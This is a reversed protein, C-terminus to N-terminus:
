NFQVVPNYRKNIKRQGRMSARAIEEDGIILILDKGDETNDTQTAMFVEMMGDVVANRIGETIQENNAVATKGNSFKGVLENHNAMFLGDEPFGGKAYWDISISPLTISGGFVDHTVSEVSFHPLPIHPFKIDISEFARKLKSLGTEATTNADDMTDSIDKGIEEMSTSVTSTMGDFEDTFTDSVDTLNETVSKGVAALNETVDKNINSGGTSVTGEMTQVNSSLNSNVETLSTSINKSNEALFTSVEGGITQTGAATRKEAESFIGDVSGTINAGNINVENLADNITTEINESIANVYARGSQSTEAGYGYVSSFLQNSVKRGTEDAVPEVEVGVREIGEAMAKSLPDIFNKNYEDAATYVFKEKSTFGFGKGGAEDWASEADSVTTGIGEIVIRDINNMGIAYATEIQQMGSEIAKARLALSEADDNPYAQEAWEHLKNQADVARDTMDSIVNGIEEAISGYDEVALGSLNINESLKAINAVADGAIGSFEDTAIGADSVMTAINVLTEGLEDTADAMDRSGAQYRQKASNYRDVASIAADVAEGSSNIAAEKLQEMDAIHQAIRNREEKSLEGTSQLINLTAMSSAIEADYQATIYEALMDKLSAFSSKLNSVQADTLTANTEMVLGITNIVDLTSQIEKRSSELSAFKENVTDVNSTIGSVVNAFTNRFDDLTLAANSTSDIWSNFVEDVKAQVLEKNASVIGAIAGAIAVLAGAILGGTLSGLLISFAVTAGGVALALQGIKAIWNDTGLILDSVADKVLSFELFATVVSGIAKVAPSIHSSIGKLAANLGDIISGTGSFVTDFTVFSDKIVSIAGQISTKATSVAKITDKMFKSYRTLISAFLTALVTEVPAKDFIGSYLTLAANIAEWILKGIKKLIEKFDIAAIFNGIKDGIEKWRVSKLATIMSDLIGKAFSNFTNAALKFDFNRFFRNVGTAISHGFNKWNFKEGFSDLFNLATNLAKAITEGVNGFLRPNILGNLFDALNSGFNRAKAYVSDWDISEMMESLSKSIRRGLDFWSTIDSEYEKIVTEGGYVGTSGGGGAGGGGGSGGGSGSEDGAENPAQLVNLEDFGLITRKLKEASKNAKDLGGATDDANDAADGIGEMAEDINDAFDASVGSIEVQWGMLKGIANIARQVLQIITNMASNIFQVAPKLTNILAGGIVAGLAQFNQKLLKVSNAWTNATKSFDGMVMSMSEMVYQYRLMTKQAQTMEQVNAQIGRNLAWEQITALTLDIGYQRLARSQGSVVGAQIRQAVASPDQNYFSGMDAALKTLNLSMDSLDNSLLDYGRRMANTYRDTDEAMRRNVTAVDNSTIGMATFMAQFQSAYRKASLESLGFAQRSTEAFDELKYAMNGFTVNVVNQVETLDSAVDIVSKFANAVRRMVYVTAYLGTFFQGISRSRSTIGKLATSFTTASRASSDFSASVKVSKSEIGSMAKAFNAAQPTAASLGAALQSVSKSFSTIKNTKLGKLTNDLVTLTSVLQNIAADAKTASAAIQIDLEDITPM